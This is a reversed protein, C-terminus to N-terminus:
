KLRKVTESSKTKEIILEELTPYIVKNPFGAQQPLKRLAQIYQLLKVYEEETLTTEISLVKEQEHRQLKWLEANLLTDRKQRHYSAKEEDTMTQLREEETMPIIKNDVIKMGNPLPDIGAIIKEDFTMEVLKNEEIKYGQPIPILNEQMLEVDSKRTYDENYFALPEGVRVEHNKPLVISEKEAIGCFIAEVINNKVIMYESM